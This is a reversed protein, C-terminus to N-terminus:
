FQRGFAHLLPPWLVRKKEQFVVRRPSKQSPRPRSDPRRPRPEGQPPPRPTPLPTPPGRAHRRRRGRRRKPGRQSRLCTRGRRRGGQCPTPPRAEAPTSLPVGSQIVAHKAAADTAPRTSTVHKSAWDATLVAGRSSARQSPLFSEDVGENPFEPVGTPDGDLCACGDRTPVDAQADLRAQKRSEDEAKSAAREVALKRPASSM